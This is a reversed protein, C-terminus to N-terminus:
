HCLKLPHLLQAFEVGVGFGHLDQHANSAHALRLRHSRHGGMETPGLCDSPTAAGGRWAMARGGVFNGFKERAKRVACRSRFLTTYPFLTSRPPRRIM